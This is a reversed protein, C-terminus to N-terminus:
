FRVHLAVSIERLTMAAFWAGLKEAANTQNRVPQTHAVPSWASDSAIVGGQEDLRLLNSGFGMRLADMTKGRWRSARSHLALLADLQSTKTDSFKDAFARLGSGVQTSAINEITEAHWVMPLVLACLPLPAAAHLAHCDSYKRAFRWLVVAGLAPNQVLRM